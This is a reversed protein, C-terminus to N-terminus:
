NTGKENATIKNLTENLVVILKDLKEAQERYVKALEANHRMEAEVLKAAMAAMQEDGRQDKKQLSQWLVRVAALAALVTVPTEVSGPLDPIQLLIMDACILTM